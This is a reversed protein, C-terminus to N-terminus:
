TTAGPVNSLRSSIDKKFQTIQRQTYKLGAPQLIKFEARAGASMFGIGGYLFFLPNLHDITSYSTPQQDGQKWVRYGIRSPQITISFVFTISNNQALQNVVTADFSQLVQNDSSLIQKMPSLMQMNQGTGQVMNEAYHLNITSTNNTTSGYLGLLRFQRLREPDGSIWRARNFLIGVFFPYTVRHITCEVQLEYKNNDTIYETFISNNQSYEPNDPAEQSYFGVLSQQMFSNTNENFEWDGIQFINYWNHPAKPTIMLSHEFMQDLLIYDVLFLQKPMSLSVSKALYLLALQLDQSSIGFQQSIIQQSAIFGSLLKQNRSLQQQNYDNVFNNFDTELQKQEQDIKQFEQASADDAWQAEVGYASYLLMPVALQSVFNGLIKAPLTMSLLARKSQQAILDTMEKTLPGTFQEGSFGLDRRISKEMNDQVTKELDEGSMKGMKSGFKQAFKKGAGEAANTTTNLIGRQTLFDDLAFKVKSYGTEWAQRISEKLSLKAAEVGVETAGKTGVQETTKAGAEETVKAGAQAVETGVELEAAYLPCLLLLLLAVVIKKM